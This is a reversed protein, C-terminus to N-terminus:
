LLSLLSHSDVTTELLTSRAELLLYLTISHYPFNRKGSLLEAFIMGSPMKPLLDRINYPMIAAPALSQRAPTTLGLDTHFPVGLVGTM